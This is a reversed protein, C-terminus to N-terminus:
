VIGRSSEATDVKVEVVRLGPLPLNMGFPLQRCSQAVFQFKIEAFVEFRIHVDTCQKRRYRLWYPPSFLHREQIIPIAISYTSNPIGYYPSSIYISEWNPIVHGSHNADRWSLPRALVTHSATEPNPVTKHQRVTSDLQFTIACPSASSPFHLPFQRISHTVLVRRM